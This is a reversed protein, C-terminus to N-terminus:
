EPQYRRQCALIGRKFPRPPRNMMAARETEQKFMRLVLGTATV